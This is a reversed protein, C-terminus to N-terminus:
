RQLCDSLLCDAHLGGADHIESGPSLAGQRPLLTYWRQLRGTSFLQVHGPAAMELTSVGAQQQMQTQYAHAAASLRFQHGAVARQGCCAALNALQLTLEAHAAPFGALAHLLKRPARPLHILAALLYHLQLGCDCLQPLLHCNM